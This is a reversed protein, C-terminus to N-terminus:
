TATQDEVVTGGVLVTATQVGSSSTTSLIGGGSWDIQVQLQSDLPDENGGFSIGEITITPEWSELAAKIINIIQTMTSDTDTSFLWQYSPVGYEPLMQREGPQTSVLSDIHQEIQESSDSIAAVQGNADLTFPVQIELGM